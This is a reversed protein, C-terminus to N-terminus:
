FASVSAPARQPRSLARLVATQGHKDVAIGALAALVPRVAEDPFRPPDVGLGAALDDAHVVLEVLRSVLLDHVTLAWDEWPFFVADPTRREAAALADPLAALHDRVAAGLAEFGGTADTNARDRLGTHSEDDLDAHVWSCRHFHEHLPIPDLDPAPYSLFEVTVDLQDALHHALGGNSMGACSSERGWGTRLADSGLLEAIAEASTLFATTITM